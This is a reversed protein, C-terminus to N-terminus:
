GFARSLRPRRHGGRAALSSFGNLAACTAPVGNPSRVRRACRSCRHLRNRLSRGPRARRLATSRAAAFPTRGHSSPARSVSRRSAPMFRYPRSMSSVTDRREVRAERPRDIEGSRAVEDAAGCQFGVAGAGREDAQDQLPFVALGAAHQARVLLDDRRVFALDRAARERRRHLFRDRERAHRRGDLDAVEDLYIRSLFRGARTTFSGNTRM